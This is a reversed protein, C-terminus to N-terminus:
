DAVFQVGIEDASQRRFGQEAARVQQDDTADGAARRATIVPKVFAELIDRKTGRFKQFGRPGNGPEAIVDDVFLDTVTGSLNWIHLRSEKVGGVLRRKLDISVAEVRALPFCLALISGGGVKGVVTEGKMVIGLLRRDTLLLEAGGYFLQMPRGSTGPPAADMPIGAETVTFLCGALVVWRALEAEGPAAVPSADRYHFDLPSYLGLKGSGTNLRVFAPLFRESNEHITRAVSSM